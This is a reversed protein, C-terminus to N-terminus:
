MNTIIRHAQQQAAMISTRLNDALAPDKVDCNEPLYLPESFTVVVRAFPWPLFTKNWAKPFQKAQLCAVGASSIPAKCLRALEFVGPKPVFIPGRPGDVAVSANRGSRCLRVLGKLAAVAGRSSSGRSTKGGLCRIVTDIITGDNSNSTMTSLNLFHVLHVLALEDGHWHAFVMPRRSKLYELMKPHADIHLRWTWTWLRYVIFVIFGLLRSKIEKRSIV